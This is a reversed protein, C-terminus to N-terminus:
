KHSLVAISGQNSVELDLAEALDRVKIYNTGNKLIREVTIERGDVIIKSQEIVERESGAKAGDCLVMATHRSENVLVDGELLFESSTLYKADTLMEFAGTKAWQERMQFTAPANGATYTKRMDVGAAEACVAMFASCDTECDDTIKALDWGNVKAFERLTNRQSQDYGIHPNSVGARCAAAMKRATTESKPRIVLTWGNAYWNRINLERGSQNGAEGGTIRGREDISAQGITVSM